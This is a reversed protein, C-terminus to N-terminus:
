AFNINNRLGDAGAKEILGLLAASEALRSRRRILIILGPHTGRKALKIYDDGNCTILILGATVSYTFVRRDTSRVPLVERLKSVSHGAQRLLDAVRDPVDHDFLFNV